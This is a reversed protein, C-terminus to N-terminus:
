RHEPMGVAGTFQLYEVWHLAARGDPIESWAAADMEQLPGPLGASPERLPVVTGPSAATGVPPRRGADPAPPWVAYILSVLLM